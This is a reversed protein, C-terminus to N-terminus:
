TGGARWRRSRGGRVVPVAVLLLVTALAGAATIWVATGTVSRLPDAAARHAPPLQDDAPYGPGGAGSVAGVARAPNVVGYGVENNRLGAPHDATQEIRQAVQEPTLARNYARILAVVGTVYAAAFSTGGETTYLYGGGRPSPGSIRDGPAAIDVYDGTSSSTVHKDGTDVGAVAIVGPYAAPYQAGDSGGGNGAAAVLVVGHDAAYRVAAALNPTAETTLSLNIVSAHANDVAYRIATAVLTSLEGGFARQQDRLVRVPVIVAGPAVGYFRFGGSTAERGAIIGAILTGHGNEDCTGDGGTAVYDIGSRVKGSLTVHDASAGSDIVGVTVGAGTSLPWALDPRLRTLAWPEEALPDTVVPGCNRPPAAAAPIAPGAITFMALIAAPAVRAFAARPSSM